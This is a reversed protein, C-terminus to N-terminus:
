FAWSWPFCCTFHFLSLSHCLICGYLWWAFRWWKALFVTLLVDKVAILLGDYVGSVLYASQGICGEVRPGICFWLLLPSCFCLCWRENACTEMSTLTVWGQQSGETRLIFFWATSYLWVSSDWMYWPGLCIIFWVKPNVKSKIITVPVIAVLKIDAGLFCYLRIWFKGHLLYLHLASHQQSWYPHFQRLYFNHWEAFLHFGWFKSKMESYQKRPIVFM